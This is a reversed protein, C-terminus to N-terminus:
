ENYMIIFNSQMKHVLIMSYIRLYTSHFVPSLYLFIM